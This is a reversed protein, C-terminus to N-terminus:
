SRTSYMDADEPNGQGHDLLKPDPTFRPKASIDTPTEPAPAPAAMQKLEPPEAAIPEPSAPDVAPPSPPMEELMSLELPPPAAAAAPAAEPPPPVQSTAEEPGSITHSPSIEPVPQPSPAKASIQKWLSGLTGSSWQSAAYAKKGTVKLVTVAQVPYCVSVGVAALGMPLVLKKFRSGTRALVLGTLGCVTILSVRPLFGPPPDKLYMYSDQGFDVVTIVGNKVSACAGKVTQVYPRLGTRVSGLGTQLRGPSEEEFQLKQVPASYVSLQQTYVLGESSRSEGGAYVRLSALGLAAPVALAVAKGAM